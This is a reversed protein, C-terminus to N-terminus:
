ATPVHDIADKIIARHTDQDIADATVKSTALAVWGSLERRAVSMIRKRELEADQLAKQHLHEAEKHAAAIIEHAEKQASFRLEKVLGEAEARAEKLSALRAVEAKEVSKRATEADKLGQGIKAAREDLIRVLPRYVWKAVVFIVITFNVVQALLLKGNLGLSAIGGTPESM